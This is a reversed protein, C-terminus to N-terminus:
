TEVDGDDGDNVNAQGCWQPSGERTAEAPKERTRLVFRESM